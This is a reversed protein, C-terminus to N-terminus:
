GKEKRPEARGEGKGGTDIKSYEEAGTLGLLEEGEKLFGPMKWCRVETGSQVACRRKAMPRKKKRRRFLICCCIPMCGSFVAGNGEAGM